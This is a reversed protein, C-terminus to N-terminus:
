QDSLTLVDDSDTRSGLADSGVTISMGYTGRLTVSTGTAYVYSSPMLPQGGDLGPRDVGHLRRRQRRVRDHDADHRAVSAGYFPTGNLTINSATPATTIDADGIAWFWKSGTQMVISTMVPWSPDFPDGTQTGGASALAPDVLSGNSGAAIAITWQSVDQRVGGPLADLDITVERHETIPVQTLQGTTSSLGATQTFPDPAFV